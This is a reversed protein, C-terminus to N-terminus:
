AQKGGHLRSRSRNFAAKVSVAKAIDIGYMEAQDLARILLDAIEEEGCTLPPLGLAEMESAKDCPEHLTGKRFSEWFESTEGHANASFVAARILRGPKGEWQETTLGEALQDRFGKDKANQAVYDRLRNLVELDTPTM